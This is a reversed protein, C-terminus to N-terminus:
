WRRWPELRARRVALDKDQDLDRLLRIFERLSEVNLADLDILYRRGTRGLEARLRRILEHKQRDDIPNPGDPDPSSSEQVIDSEPALKEDPM